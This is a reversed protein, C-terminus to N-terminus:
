IIQDSSFWSHNRFFLYRLCELIYGIQAKYVLLIVAKKLITFDDIILYMNPYVNLCYITEKKEIVSVEKFKNLNSCFLTQNAIMNNLAYLFMFADSHM